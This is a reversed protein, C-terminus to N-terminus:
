TLRQMLCNFLEVFCAEEFCIGLFFYDLNGGMVALILGVAQDIVDKRRFKEGFKIIFFNLYAFPTAFCMKWELTNLVLLEMRQITNGEFDYEDVRYSSLAPAECEEM